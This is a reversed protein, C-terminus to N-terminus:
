NVCTHTALRWHALMFHVDIVCYCSNSRKISLSRMPSQVLHSYDKFNHIWLCKIHNTQFRELLYWGMNREDHYTWQGWGSYEGCDKNDINWGQINKDPSEPWSLHGNPVCDQCTLIALIAIESPARPWSPQTQDPRCFGHATKISAM